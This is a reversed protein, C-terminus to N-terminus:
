KKLTFSMPDYIVIGFIVELLSTEADLESSIESVYGQFQIHTFTKDDNTAFSFSINEVYKKPDNEKTSALASSLKKIDDDFNKDPTKLISVKIDAEQVIEGGKRIAYITKGKANVADVYNSGNDLTIGINYGTLQISKSGLNFHVIAPILLNEAM